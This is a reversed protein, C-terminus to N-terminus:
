WTKIAAMRNVLSIIQGDDDKSWVDTDADLTAAKVRGLEDYRALRDAENCMLCIVDDVAAGDGVRAKRILMNILIPSIPYRKTQQVAM